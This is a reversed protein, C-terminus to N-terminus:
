FNGERRREREELFSFAHWPLSLQHFPLLCSSAESIGQLCLAQFTAVYELEKKSGATMLFTERCPSPTLAEGGAGPLYIIIGAEPPYPWALQQSLFFLGSGLRTRPFCSEILSGHRTFPALPGLLLWSCFDSWRKEMCTELHSESIVVTSRKRPISPFSLCPFFLCSSGNPIRVLALLPLPPCRRSHDASEGARKLLHTRKICAASYSPLFYFNTSGRFPCAHLKLREHWFASILTLLGGLM